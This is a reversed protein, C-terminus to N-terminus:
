AMWLALLVAMSTAVDGLSNAADAILAFSHGIIGGALKVAGLAGNVVLGLLSARVAERYLASSDRPPSPM